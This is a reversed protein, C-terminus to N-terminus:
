FLVTQKILKFKKGAGIQLFHSLFQQSYTVTVLLNTFKLSQGDNVSYGINSPVKTLKEPIIILFSYLTNKKHILCVKFM